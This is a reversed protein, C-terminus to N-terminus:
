SFIVQLGTITISFEVLVSIEVRLMKFAFLGSFFANWVFYPEHYLEVLLYDKNSVEGFTTIFKKSTFQEFFEITQKRRQEQIDQIFLDYIIDINSILDIIFYGRLYNKTSEIITVTLGKETQRQVVMNYFM